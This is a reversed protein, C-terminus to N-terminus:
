IPREISFRVLDSLSQKSPSDPLITLLQLAEKAFEEMKQISYRIGDNAVVCDKLWKLQKPDDKYQKVINIIKRRENWSSRNLTHILPLTLKKEKVDIGLPKGIDTTGYDLLDDKIQFAMGVKEGFLRMREILDTDNTASAAGCETCSAILSATKQRI